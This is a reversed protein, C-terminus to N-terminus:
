EGAGAARDEATLEQKALGLETQRSRRGNFARSRRVVM